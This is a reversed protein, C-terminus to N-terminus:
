VRVGSGTGRHSGVKVILWLVACDLGWRWTVRFPAMQGKEERM